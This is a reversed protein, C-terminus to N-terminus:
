NKQTLGSHKKQLKIPMISKGTNPNTMELWDGGINVPASM